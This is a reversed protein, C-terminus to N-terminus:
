HGRLPALILCAVVVFLCAGLFVVDRRYIGWLAAIVVPFAVVIGVGGLTAFWTAIVAFTTALLLGRLSFQFRPM